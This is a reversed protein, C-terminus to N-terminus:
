GPPGGAVVTTAVVVGLLVVAPAALLRGVALLVRSRDADQPHEPHYWVRVSRGPVPPLTSWTRLRVDHHLTGRHDVFDVVTWDRDLVDGPVPAVDTRTVTATTPRGRLRLRLDSWGRAGLALGIWTLLLGLGVGLAIRLLLHGDM